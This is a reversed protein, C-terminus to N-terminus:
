RRLLTPKRRLPHPMGWALTGHRYSACKQPDNEFAECGRKILDDDTTMTVWSGARLSKFRPAPAHGRCCQAPQTSAVCVKAATPSISRCSSTSSPVGDVECSKCETQDCTNGCERYFLSLRVDSLNSWHAQKVTWETYDEYDFWPTRKGNISVEWREHAREFDVYMEGEFKDLQLGWTEAGGEPKTARTVTKDDFRWSIERSSQSADEGKITITAPFTAESFNVRLFGGFKWDTDISYQSPETDLEDDFVESFVGVQSRVASACWFSGILFFLGCVSTM